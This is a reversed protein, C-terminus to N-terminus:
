RRKNLVWVTHVGDKSTIKASIGPERNWRNAEEQADRRLGYSRLYKYRRHNIIKTDPHKYLRIYSSMKDEKHEVRGSSYYM